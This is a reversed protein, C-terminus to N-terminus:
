PSPSQYQQLSFGMPPALSGCPNHSEHLHTTSSLLATGSVQGGFTDTALRRETQVPTTNVVARSLYQGGMPVMFGCYQDTNCDIRSSLFNPSPALGEGVSICQCIPHTLSSCSGSPVLRPSPTTHSSNRHEVKHYSVPLDHQHLCNM